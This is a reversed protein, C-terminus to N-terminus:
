NCPLLDVYLILADLKLCRTVLTFVKVTIYQKDNFSACFIWPYSRTWVCRYECLLWRKKWKTDAWPDGSTISRSCFISTASGASRIVTGWISSCGQTLCPSGGAQRGRLSWRSCTDAARHTAGILNGVTRNVSFIKCAYWECNALRRFIHTYPWWTWARSGSGPSTSADESHLHPLQQATSHQVTDRWIHQTM